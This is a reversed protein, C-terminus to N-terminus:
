VPPPVPPNPPIDTTAPGITVDHSLTYGRFLNWTWTGTQSPSRTPNQAVDSIYVNTRPDQNTGLGVINYFEDPGNSVVINATPVVGYNAEIKAFSVCDGLNIACTMPKIIETSNVPIEFTCILQDNDLPTGDVPLTSNVTPVEGTYVTVGDFTITVDAPTSGYGLGYMKVTRTTM